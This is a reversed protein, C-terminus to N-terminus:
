AAKVNSLEKIIRNSLKTFPTTTALTPLENNLAFAKSLAPGKLKQMSTWFRLTHEEILPM